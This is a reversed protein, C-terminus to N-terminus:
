LLTCVVVLSGCGGGARRSGSCRSAVIRKVCGSGGCYFSVRKVCGGCCAGCGADLLRWAASAAPMAVFPDYQDRKKQIKSGTSTETQVGRNCAKVPQGTWSKEAHKTQYLHHIEQRFLRDLMIHCLSKLFKATVYKYSSNVGLGPYM